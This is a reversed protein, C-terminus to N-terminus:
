FFFFFLDTSCIGAARIKILVQSKTPEPIPIEKLNVRKGNFVAAKM